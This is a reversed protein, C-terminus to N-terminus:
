ISPLRRSLEPPLEESLFIEGGSREAIISALVLTKLPKGFADYATRTFVKFKMDKVEIEDGERYEKVKVGDRYMALGGLGGELEIISNGHPIAVSAAGGLLLSVVDSYDRPMIALFYAKPIKGEYRNLFLTLSIIENLLESPDTCRKGSLISEFVPFEVGFNDRIYRLLEIYHRRFYISSFFDALITERDKVVVVYIPM